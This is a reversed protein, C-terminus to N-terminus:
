ELINIKELFYRLYSVRRNVIKGEVIMGPKIESKEGKKNTLFNTNIYTEATYYSSGDKQNVKSDASIKEVTGKLIGYDKQPLGAFAINITQGEKVNGFDQNQIYIELKYNSTDQPIISAIETGSQIYNGVKVPTIINLIGDSEAKVTSAEIKSKLSEINVNIETKSSELAKISDDIQSIYQEKTTNSTSGSINAEEIKQKTQSITSLVSMKQNNKYKELAQKSSDLTDQASKIQEELVGEQKKLKNLTDENSKITNNLDNINYAYDEYQYYMSNSKDFYNKGEDMSKLLLNLDSISKNLSDVQSQILEKQKGADNKSSIYLEYKQYYEKESESSSDFYNNNDLISKKLKEYNNISNNKDEITKDLAAKQVKLEESDITLLIDGKKVEMGEAINLETISGMSKNAVKIIENNPRVMGSAKITIEKDAVASWIITITLLSIIIYMMYMTFGKPRSNMIERSDTIDNLNEISYRM